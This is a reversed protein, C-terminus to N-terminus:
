RRAQEPNFPEELKLPEFVKRIAHEEAHSLQLRGAEANAAAQAADRAGVIAATVGAQALVWAIAIQAVSAHHGDAIPRIAELADLVQKRKAPQFWPRLRRTDAEGFERDMHVKGSLLGMELPSYCLVGLGHARCFPLVDREVERSLLSYKPQTSALARGFGLADELQPVSYNSVGYARIKGAERLSELTEMTEDQPTGPDPWHCQYLDIVEVGLRKLSAHCEAVISDRRLCRGIKLPHGEADHTDFFPTQGERGDWVLGCKTAVIVRDRRGKLARGVLEESLGFGYVPATDITNIGQDLSARIADEPRNRSTGGWLWGGLAWTGLVIPTVDLESKGLTRPRM